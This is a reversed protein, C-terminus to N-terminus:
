IPHDLQKRKVRFGLWLLLFITEEILINWGCLQSYKAMYIYCKYVHCFYVALTTFMKWIDHINKGHPFFIGFSEKTIVIVLNVHENNV